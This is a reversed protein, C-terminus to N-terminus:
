TRMRRDNSKRESSTRRPSDFFDSQENQKWLFGGRVLQDRGPLGNEGTRNTSCFDCFVPMIRANLSFFFRSNEATWVAHRLPLSEGAILLLNWVPTDLAALRHKVSHVGLQGSLPRASLLAHLISNPTIEFLLLFVLFAGECSCVHAFCILAAADDELM